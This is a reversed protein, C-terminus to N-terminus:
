REYDANVRYVRWGDDYLRLVAGGQKETLGLANKVGVPIKELNWDWTFEAEKVTGPPGIITPGDALGTVEIVRRGVSEGLYCTPSERSGFFSDFYMKGKSTLGWGDDGFEWLGLRQGQQIQPESLRIYASKVPTFEPFSEILRKAQSRDLTFPHEAQTQISSSEGSKQAQSGSLDPGKKCAFTTLVLALIIVRWTTSHSKM